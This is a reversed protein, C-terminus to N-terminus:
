APNAATEAAHRYEARRARYVPIALIFMVAIALMYGVAEGLIGWQRTLPLMLAMSIVANFVTLSMLPDRKHSRLETAMAFLPIQIIAACALCITVGIPALRGPVRPLFHGVYPILAVFAIEGLVCIIFAQVTSRRLLSDFERWQRRAVMMGFRPAKTYVWTWAVNGIMRVLQFTMGWRGAEVAGCFYFAIPTAMDYVFYGSM